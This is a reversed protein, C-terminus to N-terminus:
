LSCESPFSFFSFSLSGLNKVSKSLMMNRSRSRSHVTSPHLDYTPLTPVTANSSSVCLLPQVSLSLGKKSEDTHDGDCDLLSQTPDLDMTVCRLHGEGANDGELDLLKEHSVGSDSREVVKKGGEKEEDRKGEEEEEENEKQERLHTNTELAAAM